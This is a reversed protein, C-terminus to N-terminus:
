KKGLVSFSVPCSHLDRLEGLTEDSILTSGLVYIGSELVLLSLCDERFDQFLRRDLICSIKDPIGSNWEYLYQTGTLQISEHVMLKGRRLLTSRAMQRVGKVLKDVFIHDIDFNIRTKHFFIETQNFQFHKVRFNTDQEIFATINEQIDVLPVQENFEEVFIREALYNRSYEILSVPSIKLFKVIERWTLYDFIVNYVHRPLM